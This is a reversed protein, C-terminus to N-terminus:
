TSASQNLDLICNLCFNFIGLYSAYIQFLFHKHKSLKSAFILVQFHRTYDTAISTINTMLRSSTDLISVLVKTKDISSNSHHKLNVLLTRQEGDMWTSSSSKAWQQLLPSHSTYIAPQSACSTITIHEQNMSVCLYLDDGLDQPSQHGSPTPASPLPLDTPKLAATPLSASGTQLRMSAWKLSAGISLWAQPPSELSSGSSGWLEIDQNRLAMALQDHTSAASTSPLLFRSLSSRILLVQLTLQPIEETCHHNLPSTLMLDSSSPPTGVLNNM